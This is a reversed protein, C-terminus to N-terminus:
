ICNQQFGTFTQTYVLSHSLINLFFILIHNFSESPLPKGPIPNVHITAFFGALTKNLMGLPNFFSYDISSDIM